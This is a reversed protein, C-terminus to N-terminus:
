LGWCLASSSVNVAGIKKNCLWYKAMSEYDVVIQIHFVESIVRWAHKAAVCSFLLHTTTENESCYLCTM